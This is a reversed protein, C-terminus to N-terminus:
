KKASASDCKTIGKVSQLLSKFRTIVKQSM